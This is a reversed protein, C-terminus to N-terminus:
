LTQFCVRVSNANTVPNYDVHGYYGIGCFYSGGTSYSSRTWYWSGLAQKQFDDFAPLKTGENPINYSYMGTGVPSTSSEQRRGWLLTNRNTGIIEEVAPLWVKRTMTSVYQYNRSYGTSAKIETPALYDKISNLAKLYLGDEQLTKYFGYYTTGSSYTAAPTYTYSPYTYYHGANFQEETLTGVPKFYGKIFKNNVYQSTIPTFSTDLTFTDNQYDYTYVGSTENSDTYRIESFKIGTEITSDDPKISTSQSYVEEGQARMAMDMSSYKYGGYNSYRNTSFATADATLIYSYTPNINHPTLYSVVMWRIQEKGDFQKIIDAIFIDYNNMISGSDQFLKKDGLNFMVSAYGGQQITHLQEWTYNDLPRVPEGIVPATSGRKTSKATYVGIDEIIITNNWLEGSTDSATLIYAGNESLDFTVIGGTTAPTQKTAITTGGKTLTFTVNPLEATVIQYPSKTAPTITGIGAIIEDPSPNNNAVTVTGGKAEIAEKMQPFKVILDSYTAM